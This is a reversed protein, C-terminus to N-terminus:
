WMGGLVFPVLCATGIALAAVGPVFYLPKKLPNKQHSM